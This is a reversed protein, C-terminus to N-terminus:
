VGRRNTRQAHKARGITTDARSMAVNAAGQQHARLLICNVDSKLPLAVSKIAFNGCPRWIEVGYASTQM